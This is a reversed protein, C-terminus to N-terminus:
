SKKVQKKQEIYPHSILCMHLVEQPFPDVVDKVRNGYWRVSYNSFLLAM